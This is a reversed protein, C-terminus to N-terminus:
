ESRTLTPQFEVSASMWANRPANGPITSRNLPNRVVHNRDLSEVMGDEVHAVRLRRGVEVLLREAALQSWDTDPM